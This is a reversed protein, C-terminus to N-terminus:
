NSIKTGNIKTTSLRLPYKIKAESSDYWSFNALSSNGDLYSLDAQISAAREVSSIESIYYKVAYYATSSKSIEDDTSFSGGSLTFAVAETGSATGTVSAGVGNVREISYATTTAGTISHDIRITQLVTKVSDGTSLTNSNDDTTVKIIAVTNWGASLTSSLSYGSASSVLEVSSIKSALVSTEKSKLTNLADAGGTIYCVNTAGCTGSISTTTAETFNDSNSSIGKAVIDAVAFTSSAGLMGVKEEGISNLVGKIYLTETGKPVIYDLGSILSQSSVTEITGREIPTTATPSDYLALSSFVKNANTYAAGNGDYLYLALDKIKVDENVARLKIAGLVGTGSSVGAIEYKDKNNVADDYNDMEVYLSGAAGTTITRGSDNASVSTSWTIGSPEVNEGESVDEATADYLGWRTSSGAEDNTFDVTVYYKVTENKPVRIDLGQFTVRQDSDIDSGSVAKILQDGANYLRVQSIVRNNATSDTEEGIIIESVKIDDTKNAKMNFNLVEVNTTGTVVIMSSSLANTSFTVGPSQITVPALSLTNPVIDAINVNSENERIVLDGGSVSNVAFAYTASTSAEVTVDARVVLEKTVGSTLMLDLSASGYVKSSVSASSIYPLDYVNGTAKDMVEVNEIGRYADSAEDAGTATVTLKLTTMEVDTGSNPTIKITGFEQNAQDARVSDNTANTKALAVAGAQITLSTGAYSGTIRANTSYSKGVAIVDSTSDLSITVTRNAGDVIDAKVDFKKEKNKELVYPTEFVFTAYKDIFGQSSAVKVGSVYLGVNEFDDDAASGDSRKLTISSVAVDEINGNALKVSAIMADEDGLDPSTLSNGNSVTLQGVSVNVGSMINGTIPFSGSISAGTATIDSAKAIGLTHQNTDGSAVQARVLFSKTQGAPIVVGNSFNFVAEKNSDIDKVNGKRTGDVYIAVGDINTATGLGGATLKISNITVAGDNSATVNFKLFDSPATQPVSAAAPTDSALAVTLATGAIPGSVNGGQSVDALDSEVGNVSAGTAPMSFGSPTVEVYDFSYNNALFAAESAFKRVTGDTSVVMVDPSSSTKILQGAPYKGVTLPSSVTYNTFFADIVDVVKKNWNAGWLNIANEESVISRLVGNPEVAYVTAISPSKILKTGPRIVINATLPYSELESQSVTVVGSFDSYWSFYTAENPFVYRKGNAGLYYVSSLGDMKILDGASASAKAEPAAVVCLSLVTSLMVGTVFIKRLMSM